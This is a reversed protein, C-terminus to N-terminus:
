TTKELGRRRLRVQKQRATTESGEKENVSLSADQEAGDIVKEDNNEREDVAGSGRMMERGRKEREKRSEKVRGTFIWVLVGDAIGVVVGTLIALLIATERTYGAGSVSAVYVAAASGFISFLINVTTSLTRLLNRYETGFSAPQASLYAPLFPNPKEPDEAVRIRELEAPPIYVETGALLAVAVYRSPNLHTNELSSIGADSTAWRSLSQLLDHDITLPPADSSEVMETTGDSLPIEIMEDGIEESGGEASSDIKEDRVPPSRRSIAESLETRLDDPLDVDTALLDAITEILHPPLTLLTAM